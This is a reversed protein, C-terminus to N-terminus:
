KNNIKCADAMKYFLNSVYPYEEKLLMSVEFFLDYRDKVCTKIIINAIIKADEELETM